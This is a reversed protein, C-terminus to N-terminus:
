LLLSAKLAAGESSKINRRKVSKLIFHCDKAITIAGLVDKREKSLRYGLGRIACEETECVEPSTSHAM